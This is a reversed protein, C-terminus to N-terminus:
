PRSGRSTAGPVVPAATPQPYVTLVKIRQAAGPKMVTLRLVGRCVRIADKLADLTDLPRGNAKLLIDGTELGAARAASNLTMSEIKLAAVSVPPPENPDSGPEPPPVDAGKLTVPQVSVGLVYPPEPEPPPYRGTMPPMVTTATKLQRSYADIYAIEVRGGHRAIDEAKYLPQDNLYLVIDGRRLGARDAATGRVPEQVLQAGYGRGYPVLRYTIGFRPAFHPAEVPGPAPRQQAPVRSPVATAILASVALPTLASLKGPM